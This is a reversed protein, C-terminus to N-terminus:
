ELPDDVKATSKQESIKERAWEKQYQPKMLAPPQYLVHALVIDDPYRKLGESAVQRMMQTQELNRYCLALWRYTQELATNEADESVWDRHKGMSRAQELYTVAKPLNNLRTIYIEGIEMVISVSFPDQREGEKLYEVAKIAAADSRDRGIIAAGQVWGPVFTPDLWTMLRFLPLAAVPDNHTHHHMDKYASTAREIDGFIGRFDRDKSPVTTLVSEENMLKKHGDDAADETSMGSKREAETMQRMEVGNHLYLDTRLWLWSSISTRFQGLISTSAHTEQADYNAPIYPPNITPGFDKVFNGAAASGIIAIIPIFRM